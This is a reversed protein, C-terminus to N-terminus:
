LKRSDLNENYNQVCIFLRDLIWCMPYKVGLNASSWNHYIIWFYKCAPPATAQDTCCCISFFAYTVFHALYTRTDPSTNNPRFLLKFIVPKDYCVELVEGLFILSTWLLTIYNSWYTLLCDVAQTGCRLWCYLRFVVKQAIFICQQLPVAHM